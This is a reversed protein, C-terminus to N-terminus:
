WKIATKAIEATIKYNKIYRGDCNPDDAYLWLRKCFLSDCSVTVM